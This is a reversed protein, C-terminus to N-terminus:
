PPRRPVFLEKAPRPVEVERGEREMSKPRPVEPRRVAFKPPVEPLPPRLAVRGEDPKPVPLREVVPVCRLGEVWRPVEVGRLLWDVECGEREKLLRLLEPLEFRPEEKLEGERLLPLKPPPPPRLKPPPPLRPRRYHM